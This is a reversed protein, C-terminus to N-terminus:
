RSNKTTASDFAVAIGALIVLVCGAIGKLAIAEKYIIMGAAFSTVPELMNLVSATSAGLTKIGYTLLFLSMVTCFVAITLVLGLALPTPPLMMEKTIMAKIGFFVCAFCSVYFVIVLGHLSAFKLKKSAIVYSAYTIGSGIALLIGVVSLSSFDSMLVLGGLACLCAITKFVTIKEKFVMTMAVTVFLPYTFHLMTALGTPILSYSITLLAMTAGFGIIGMVVMEAIQRASAQMNIGLIKLMIFSVIASFFLRYFVVSGSTMGEMLARKTFIPMIGYLFSAAVVALVGKKM